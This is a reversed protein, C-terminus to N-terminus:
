LVDFDLFLSQDQKGCVERPLFQCAGYETENINISYVPMFYCVNEQFTAIIPGYEVPLLKCTFISSFNELLKDIESSTM